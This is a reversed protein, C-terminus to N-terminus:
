RLHKIFIERKSNLKEVKKIASELINIKEGILYVTIYVGNWIMLLLFLSLIAKWHSYSILSIKFKKFAFRSFLFAMVIIFLYLLTFSDPYISRPLSLFILLEFLLSISFVFLGIIYKM